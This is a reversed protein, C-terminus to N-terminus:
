IAPEKCEVAFHKAVEPNDFAIWPPFNFYGFHLVGDIEKRGFAHGEPLRIIYRPTIM